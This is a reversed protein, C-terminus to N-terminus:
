HDEYAKVGAQIEIDLHNVRPPIPCSYRHNYACYPNYAKNFDIIITEGNPIKLDLYKGGGYSQNGNTLDKYPLFLYEKFEQMTKAKDSQYIELVYDNGDLNFHAEGYKVYIPRRSTTTEMEFPEPEQNLVFTAEISYKADIPFFELEHFHALGEKTLPSTLSDAFEHNIKTRHEQIEELYAPDTTPTCSSLMNLGIVGVICVVGWGVVAREPGMATKESKLFGMSKLIINIFPIGLMWVLWTLFIYLLIMTKKRQSAM